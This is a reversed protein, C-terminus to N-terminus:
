HCGCGSGCKKATSDAAKAETTPKTDSSKESSSSSSSTSVSSGSSYDTKYWGGGKLHFASASIVREAQKPCKAETCDPKCKLPKDSMKQVAEFRGCKPCEYEYIPM